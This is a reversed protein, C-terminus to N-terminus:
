TGGCPLVGLGDLWEPGEVHPPGDAIAESGPVERGHAAPVAGEHPGDGRLCEVLRHAPLSGADRLVLPRGCGLAAGQRELPVEVPGRAHVVERGYPDGGLEVDDDRVGPLRPGPEDGSVPSGHPESAVELKHDDVLVVAEPQDLVAD